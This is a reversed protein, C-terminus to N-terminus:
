LLVAIYLQDTAIFKWDINHWKLLNGFLVYQIKHRMWDNQSFEIIYLNSNTAFSVNENIM